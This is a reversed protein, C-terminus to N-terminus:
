LSGAPRQYWRWNQGYLCIPWEPLVSHNEQVQYGKCLKATIIEQVKMQLNIRSAGHYKSQWRLKAFKSQLFTPWRGWYATLAFQPHGGQATYGVADLIYVADKRTTTNRLVIRM